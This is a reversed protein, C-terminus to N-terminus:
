EIMKLIMWLKQFEIDIQEKTLSGFAIPKSIPLKTEFPLGNHTVAQKLFMGVANSM